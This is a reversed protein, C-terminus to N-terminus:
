RSICEVRVYGWRDNPTPSNYHHAAAWGNYIKHAGFTHGIGEGRYLTYRFGSPGRASDYNRYFSATDCVITHHDPVTVAGAPGAVGVAVAAGAALSAGVRLSRRTNM